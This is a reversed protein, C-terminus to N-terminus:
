RKVIRFEWDVIEGDFAQSIYDYTAPNDDVQAEIVTELAGFLEDLDINGKYGVSFMIPITITNVGQTM